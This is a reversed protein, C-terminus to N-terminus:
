PSTSVTFRKSHTSSWFAAPNGTVLACVETTAGLQLQLVRANLIGVHLAEERESFVEHRVQRRRPKLRIKLLPLL